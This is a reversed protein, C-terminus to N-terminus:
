KSNTIDLKHSVEIIEFQENAERKARKYQEATNKETVPWTEGGEDRGKKHYAVCENVYKDMKASVLRHARRTADSFDKANIFVVEKNVEGVDLEVRYVRKM